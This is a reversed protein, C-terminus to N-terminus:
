RVCRPRQAPRELFKDDPCHERVGGALKFAFLTDGSGRGGRGGSRGAPPIDEQACLRSASCLFAFIYFAKSRPM